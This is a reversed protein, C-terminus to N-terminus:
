NCLNYVLESQISIKGSKSVERGAGRETMGRGGQTCM